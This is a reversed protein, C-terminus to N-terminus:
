KWRVITVRTGQGIESEINFEDVLRRSGPLGKGLGGGTTFGDRMANGINSIGPGKDEFILRLGARGSASETPQAILRGSGAYKIVNRALESAVTALRTQDILRFGLDSAIKRVLGRAVAIDRDNELALSKSEM